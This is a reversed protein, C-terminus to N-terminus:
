RIISDSTPRKGLLKIAEEPTYGLEVATHLAFLDALQEAEQNGLMDAHLPFDNVIVGDIVLMPEPQMGVAEADGSQKKSKDTM